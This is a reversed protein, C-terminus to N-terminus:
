DGKQVLNRRVTQAVDPPSYGTQLAQTVGFASYCVKKFFVPSRKAAGEFSQKLNHVQLDM